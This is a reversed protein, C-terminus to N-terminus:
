AAPKTGKIKDWAFMGAIPGLVIMLTQLSDILEPKLGIALASIGSYLFLAMHRTRFEM